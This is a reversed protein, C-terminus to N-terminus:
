DSLLNCVGTTSIKCGWTIQLQEVGALLLDANQSTQFTFQGALGYQGYNSLNDLNSNSVSLGSGLATFLSNLSDVSIFQYRDAIVLISGGMQRFQTLAAIEAATYPLFPTELVVLNYNQLLEPTLLHGDM